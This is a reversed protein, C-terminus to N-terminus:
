PLGYFYIEACTNTKNPIRTKLIINDSNKLLYYTSCRKDFRVDLCVANTNCKYNYLWFTSLFKVRNRMIRNFSRSSFNLACLFFGFFLPLIFIFLKLSMRTLNWHHYCYYKIIFMVIYLDWLVLSLIRIIKMIIYYTM